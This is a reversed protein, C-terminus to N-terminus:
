ENYGFALTGDPLLTAGWDYAGSFDGDGFADFLVTDHGYVADTDLWVLNGTTGTIIDDTVNWAIEMEM